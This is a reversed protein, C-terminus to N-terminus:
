DVTSHFVMDGASIKDNKKNLKALDVITSRDEAYRIQNRLYSFKDM